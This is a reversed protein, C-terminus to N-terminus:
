GHDQGMESATESPPQDDHDDSDRDLAMQAFWAEIIELDDAQIGPDRKEALAAYELVTEAARDSGKLGRNIQTKITARRKTVKRTNGGETLPIKVALEERWETLLNKQGKPRVGRKRDDNVAFQGAKPPRYKGHAYSGDARTNGKKYPKGDKRHGRAPQDHDDM